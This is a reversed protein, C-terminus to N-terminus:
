LNFKKSAKSKCQKLSSEVSFGKSVKNSFCQCTFEKMGKPPIINASDMESEFGLHCFKTLLSNIENENSISSKNLILM